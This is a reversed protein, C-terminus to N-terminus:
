RLVEGVTIRGRGRLQGISSLYGLGTVWTVGVILVMLAAATHHAPDPAFRHVAFTAGFSVAFWSAGKWSKRVLLWRLAFFVLPAGALVGLVIDMPRDPLTALMLLVGAGCM